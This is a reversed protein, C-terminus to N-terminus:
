DSTVHMGAAASNISGEAGWVTMVTTASYGQASGGSDSFRITPNRRGAEYPQNSAGSYNGQASAFSGGSGDGAVQVTLTKAFGGTNIYGAQLGSVAIGESDWGASAETDTYAFVDTRMGETKGYDDWDVFRSSTSGSGGSMDILVDAEASGFLLVGGAGIFYGASAQGALGGSFGNTDGYKPSETVFSGNLSGQGGIGFMTFESAGIAAYTSANAGIVARNHTENGVAISKDMQDFGTQNRTDWDDTSSVGGGIVWVDGGTKGFLVGGASQAGAIGGAAGIGFSGGSIGGGKTILDIDGTIAGGAAGVKVDYSAGSGSDGNDGNPICDGPGGNGLGGANGNCSQNEAFAVGCSLLTALCVVLLKKFM